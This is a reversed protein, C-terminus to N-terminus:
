TLSSCGGTGPIVQIQASIREKLATVHSIIGILKDDQLLGALTEMATGLANVTAFSVSLRAALKEQSLNFRNCLKRIIRSVDRDDFM